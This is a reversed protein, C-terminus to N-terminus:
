AKPRYCWQSAGAKESMAWQQCCSERASELETKGYVLAVFGGFLEDSELEDPSKGNERVWRSCFFFTVFLSRSLYSAPPPWPLKEAHNPLPPWLLHQLPSIPRQPNTRFQTNKNKIKEEQFLSEIVTNPNTKDTKPKQTTSSPSWNSPIIIPLHIIAQESGLTPSWQLIIRSINLDFCLSRPLNM